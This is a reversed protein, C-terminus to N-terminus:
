GSGSVVMLFLEGISCLSEGEKGLVLDALTEGADPLFLVTRESEAGTGLV